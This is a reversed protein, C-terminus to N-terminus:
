KTQPEAPVAVLRLKAGDLIDMIEDLRLNFGLGFDRLDAEGGHQIDFLAVAVDLTRGTALAETLYDAARQRSLAQSEESASARSSKSYTM